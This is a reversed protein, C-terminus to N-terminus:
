HSVIGKEPMPKNNEKSQAHMSETLSSLQLLKNLTISLKLRFINTYYYNDIAVRELDVAEGLFRTLSKWCGVLV